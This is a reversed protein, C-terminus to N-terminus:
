TLRRRRSDGQPRRSRAKQWTEAVVVAVGIVGLTIIFAVPQASAVTFITLAVLFALTEAPRTVFAYALVLLLAVVLAVLVAKLVALAVGLVMLPLLWKV